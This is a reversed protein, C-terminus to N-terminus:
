PTAQYHSPFRDLFRKVRQAASRAQKVSLGLYTQPTLAALREDLPATLQRWDAASLIKNKVAAAAAEYAQPNGRRRELTQWAEALISYNEELAAALRQQDPAVKALGRALSQYALLCHGCVVGLNRLVTSESLDRQLRSQLLKRSMGEILANALGLNGEANEFDIPNVKQPMASSGVQGASVRQVLWGDSIYRWMDQSLDLLVGNLRSLCQLLAVIDDNPCIQTTVPAQELDLSRLLQQSLAPWDVEPAAFQMAQYSGVAGSFKGQLRLSRLEELLPLLRQAFVALEKGLTTPIAAQGHTRALMPLAAHQSVLAELRALLQLLSPWLVEEVGGRLMLRYALNNIDESTIAFHIFPLLRPHGAAQLQERLYYEVAKVDHHTQAELAKVRSLAMEDPEALRALTRREAASLSSLVGHEALLQLYQLELRIRFSILAAESFHTRLPSTSVLYRGDIPSLAWLDAKHM